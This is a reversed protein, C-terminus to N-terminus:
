VTVGVEMPPLQMPEPCVILTVTFGNGITFAPTSIVIQEVVVVPFKLPETTPPPESPKPCHVELPVPVNEGSLM